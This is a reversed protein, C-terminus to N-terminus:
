IYFVVYIEYWMIKQEEDLTKALGLTKQIQGIQGGVWAQFVYETRFIYLVYSKYFIYIIHFNYMYILALYLLFPM